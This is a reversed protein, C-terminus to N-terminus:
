LSEKNGTRSEMIKILYFLITLILITIAMGSMEQKTLSTLFWLITIVALCPVLYGGPIKFTAQHNNRNKRLKIVSLAVGLYILLVSASSLIALQKFESTISLIC